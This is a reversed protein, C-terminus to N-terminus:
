ARGGAGLSRKLQVGLVLGDEDALEIAVAQAGAQVDTRRVGQFHDLPLDLRVVRLGGVFVDQRCSAPVGGPVDVPDAPRRHRAATRAAQGLLDFPLFRGGVPRDRAPGLEALPGDLKMEDRGQRGIKLVGIQQDRRIAGSEGQSAEVLVQQLPFLQDDGAGLEVVRFIVDFLQGLDDLDVIDFGQGHRDHGHGAAGTEM